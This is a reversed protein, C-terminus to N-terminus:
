FPIKIGFSGYVISKSLVLYPWFKEFAYVVALLEKETINYHVQADTTRELIRKLSRNSVEVQGGTQPHYATALRHTVGYKLMVKVFQDNCFYTGRDSIIACPTGFTNGRSSPFPGMFDIGWVDFIECVQISNLPMEDRQLIEGQRKCADCSKVLDHADHYITPWYFDSNFVKKATYNQGHHGGTPRNYCAKLIDVAEQGHVYRRIVQDAHYNAFDVFWSTSSDGRFSVVNLTELPFTENIEKKDLVSQHPNELRSLHDAALNEYGKKDRVIIDFEQLLLVWRLLRPKADLGSCGGAWSGDIRLLEVAGLRNGVPTMGRNMPSGAGGSSESVTGHSQSSSPGTIHNAQTVRPTANLPEVHNAVMPEKSIEPLFSGVIVQVPSAAVLLGAVVGGFVRGDPGSLTISLGGTRTRQGYAESLVFSGSLALIDFRGEYTATGGSTAAQRLTVNTIVGIGSMICVARPGNQSFSMIKNLVDEGPQVVIIHPTFGYGGSGFGGSGFSERIKPKKNSSGPPRGRVKKAFGDEMPISSVPAVSIPPMQQQQHQDGGGFGGNVVGGGAGVNVPTVKVSRVASPSMTGDPAYKKPRGRKKMVQEGGGRENINIAHPTGAQSQSPVQTLEFMRGSESGNM